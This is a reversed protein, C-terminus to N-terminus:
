LGLRQVSRKIQDIMQLCTYEGKEWGGDGGDSDKHLNMCETSPPLGHAGREAEPCKHWENQRQILGELLRAVSGDENKGQVADRVAERAMKSWEAGDLLITYGMPCDPRGTHLHMTEENRVPEGVRLPIEGEQSGRHEIHTLLRSFEHVILTLLTSLLMVNQYASAHSKICERCHLVSCALTTASRLLSLTLPFSPAPLTQFSSLTTYLNPMCSCKPTSAAGTLHPASLHLSRTQIHPPLTHAIQSDPLITPHPPNPLPNHITSSTYPSEDFVQPDLHMARDSFPWTLLDSFGFPFEDMLFEDSLLMGGSEHPPLTQLVEGHRAGVGGLAGFDDNLREGQEGDEEGRRRKRPRGM